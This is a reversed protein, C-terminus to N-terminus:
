GCIRRSIKVEKNRRQRGRNRGPSRCFFGRNIGLMTGVEDKIAPLLDGLFVLEERSFSIDERTKHGGLGVSIKGRLRPDGHDKSDARQYWLLQGQCVVFSYVIIQQRSPDEELGGDGFRKATDSHKFVATLLERVNRTVFVEPSFSSPLFGVQEDTLYRTPVYLSTKEASPLAEKKTILPEPIVLTFTKASESREAERENM